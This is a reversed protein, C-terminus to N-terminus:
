IEFIVVAVGDLYYRARREGHDNTRLLPIIGFRYIGIDLENNM